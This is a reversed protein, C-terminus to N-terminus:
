FTAAALATSFLSLLGLTTVALLCSHLLEFGGKSRLYNGLIPSM